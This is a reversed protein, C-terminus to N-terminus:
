EYRLSDVPDTVAAKVAQISMVAIVSFVSIMGGLVFLDVGLSIRYAFNDLWKGLVIYTLPTTIFIGAALLYLYDKILLRVIVDPSAGLIKRIGIEKTRIGSTLTILGFLGIGAIFIAIVSGYGVIRNWLRDNRYKTEMSEDLFTYSFPIDPVIENWTENLYQVAEHIKGPYVRVLLRSYRMYFDASIMVPNIDHYFSQFMYDRVVGIIIPAKAPDQSYGPIPKGVPDTMDFERILSENVIVANKIEAAPDQKFDRGNVIELDLFDVYNQEVSFINITYTAGNYFYRRGSSNNSGLENNSATFDKILSSSSLANKFQASTREWGADKLPIQIINEKDYGPSSERTYDFQKSMILTSNILFLSLAFQIVVLARTFTNSGSLKLRKQLVYVPKFGSIVLAPYGGAFLSTFFVLGLIVPFYTMIGSFTLDLEKGVINNFLPLASWSLIIGALLAFLSIIVTEGWYQLALQSRRAGIVKRMGIEKSRSSSLGISLTTFNICAILLIMLAIGSLIYSYKPSSFSSLHIDTLRQLDYSLVLADDAFKERERLLEVYERSHRLTFDQLTETLDHNDLEPLTKIYTQISVFDWRDANNRYPSVSTTLKKFPLLFDFKITSNGPINEATGTVIFEEYEENLKIFLSSGIPDDDGFYKGAADKSLVVSNMDELVSGPNGSLLGFSFVKFVSTDAYLVNEDNVIEDKRVYHKLRKFRIFSEIGPIESCLAPGLPISQNSNMSKISGDPNYRLLTVRYINEANEHFKDYSYEDRVYLLILICFALGISLGMINILTYGKKRQINRLAIKFYNKLMIQSGIAAKETRRFFSLIVQMMYWTWAKSKGANHYIDNFIEGFDGIRTDPKKYKYLRKLMREAFRPPNKYGYDKKM